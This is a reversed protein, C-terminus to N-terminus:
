VIVDGGTLGPAESLGCRKMFDNSFMYRQMPDPLFKNREEIWETLKNGYMSTLRSRSYDGEQGWHLTFPINLDDMGKFVKLYFNQTNLSNLGPLEITCTLPSFRTFAVTAKSNRVFRVGILGAFNSQNAIRMVTRVAQEAKDIPVGLETSASGGKPRYITSDGFINKPTQTYGSQEEAVSGFLGNVIVPVVASASDSMMGILSIIDDGVRTSSGGPPPSLKNQDLKKKYMVRLYSNKSSAYPNVIIDLHYPDQDFPLGFDTLFSKLNDSASHRFNKLHQYVAEANDYDIRTCYTEFMFLTLAEVIYGHIVGFSGFSVVASYFLKDDTILKAGFVNSFNSNIIPNSDPQIFFHDSESTVIHIARVYDQMAGIKLASGHTGTSVAGSITQGNSAGTTPLCFGRSELVNNIQNIQCGSQFFFLRKELATPDDPFLATGNISNVGVTGFYTLPKSDHISDNCIAVDSLSWKGGYSRLRENGSRALGIMKQIGALGDKFGGITSNSIQYRHLVQRQINNHENSWRYNDTIIINDSM